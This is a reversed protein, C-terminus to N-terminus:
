IVLQLLVTSIPLCTASLPCANIAAVYNHLQTSYSIPFLFYLYISHMYTVVNICSYMAVYIRAESHMDTNSTIMHPRAKHGNRM